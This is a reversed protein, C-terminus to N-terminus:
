PNKDIRTNSFLGRWSIVHDKYVSTLSEAGMAPVEVLVPVGPVGLV